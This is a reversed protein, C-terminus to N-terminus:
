INKILNLMEDSTFPKKLFGAFGNKKYDDIHSGSMLVIRCLPDIELLKEALEEGTMEPMYYDSVVYDFKQNKYMEILKIPNDITTVDYDTQLYYKLVNLMGLEDDVVIVRKKLNPLENNKIM